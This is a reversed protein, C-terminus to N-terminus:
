SKHIIINLYSRYNKIYIGSTLSKQIDIITLSHSVSSLLWSKLNLYHSM